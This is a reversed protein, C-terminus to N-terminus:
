GLGSLDLCGAGVAELPVGDLRRVFRTLLEERIEEPTWERGERARKEILLAVAGAVVASAVSTGSERSFLRFLSSPDGQEHGAPVPVTSLVDGGPAVLDPKQLGYATPGHSSPRYLKPFSIKEVAGVTLAKRAQAPCLLETRPRTAPDPHRRHLNGAATIVLAGCTVANDVARCLLCHGDLCHWRHDAQNLGCSLSLVDARRDLAEDIGQALYAPTTSGGARSTKVNLLDVAPAIGSYQPHRAAIVGACFTGHRGPADVDEGCTSVSAAVRLFPHTTDIGSDLVAVRVGRGSFPKPASSPREWGIRQAVIAIQGADVESGELEWEIWRVSPGLVDRRLERLQDPSVKGHFGNAAFLPQPALGLFHTARELVPGLKEEVKRKYDPWREGPRPSVPATLEFLALEDRM